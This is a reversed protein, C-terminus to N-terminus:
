QESATADNTMPRRTPGGTTRNTRAQGAAPRLAVKAGDTLRNFNDAAMVAGPELDEVESVTGDTTGVTLPHVTVVQNSALLYVFAGQANHQIVTNPVLTVDEHTDM